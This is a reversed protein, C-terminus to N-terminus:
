ISINLRHIRNNDYNSSSINFSNTCFINDFYTLLDDFGKSFIGHSVILTIETAGLSKLMKANELFTRGGDCLDDIIICKKNSLDTAHIVTSVINGTSIDRVKDATVIEVDYGSSVLYKCLAFIKKQAGADPSVLTIKKNGLKELATLVFKHNNMIFLNNITAGTVDSHPDFVIVEFYNQSNILDAFVRMSHSEGPNCVRDQRAYPVYPMYLSVKDAGARRLADTMMLVRMLSDSSTISACILIHTETPTTRRIPSELRIFVEGGPFISTNYKIEKHEELPFPCPTGMSVYHVENPKIKM